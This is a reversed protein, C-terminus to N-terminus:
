KYNQWRELTQWQMQGRYATKKESIAGLVEESWWPTKTRESQLRIHKTGCTEATVEMLVM